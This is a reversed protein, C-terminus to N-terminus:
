KTGGSTKERIIARIEEVMPLVPEEAGAPTDDLLKWPLEIAKELAKTAYPM